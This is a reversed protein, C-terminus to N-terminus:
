KEVVEITAEACAYQNYMGDGAYADACNFNTAVYEEMDTGKLTTALWIKDCSIM